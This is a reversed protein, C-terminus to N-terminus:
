RGRRPFRQSSEEYSAGATIHLHENGVEGIIYGQKYEGGYKGSSRGYLFGAEGGAYDFVPRRVNLVEKSSDEVPAATITAVRQPRVILPPLSVDAPPSTEMWGLLLPSAVTEAFSFPQGDSLMLLPLHVASSNLASFTPDAQQAFLPLCLGFFGAVVSLARKMM